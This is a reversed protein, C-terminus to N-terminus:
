LLRLNPGVTVPEVTAIAACFSWSKREKLAHFVSRLSIFRLNEM